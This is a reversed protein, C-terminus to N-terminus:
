IVKVPRSVVDLDAITTAVGDYQRAGAQELLRRMDALDGNPPNRYDVSVGFDKEADRIGSKVVNWFPDADPAHTVVVFRADAAAHLSFALVAWAAALRALRRM